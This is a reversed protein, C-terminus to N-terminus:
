QVFDVITLVIGILVFVYGLNNNRSTYIKTPCNNLYIIDVLEDVKYRNVSEDNRATIQEGYDTQYTFFVNDYKVKRSNGKEIKTVKANTSVGHRTIKINKIIGISGLLIMFIGVYELKM